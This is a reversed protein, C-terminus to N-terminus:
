HSIWELKKDNNENEFIQRISEKMEKMRGGLCGITTPVVKATYGERRERLEFCLRNYNGIKGDRKAIKNNENPCAMDILRITKKSTDELTLDPRRATGDTRMPYEWDWFLKKGDKGIVEANGTRQIGSQINLSCAKNNNNNNNNNNNLDHLSQSISETGTNSIHFTKTRLDFGIRLEVMVKQAEWVPKEVQVVFDSKQLTEQVFHVRPIAEFFSELLSLGEDLLCAIKLLNKRWYNVLPHIIKGFLFPASHLGVPLFQLFM